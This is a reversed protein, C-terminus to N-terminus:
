SLLLLLLWMLFGTFATVSLGGLVLVPLINEQRESQPPQAPAKQRPRKKRRRVPPRNGPVGPQAPADGHSRSQRMYHIPDPSAGGVPVMMSTSDSPAAGRPMKLPPMQTTTVHHPAGAPPSGAPRRPRRAKAPVPRAADGAQSQQSPPRRRRAPKRAAVPPMGVTRDSHGPQFAPADPPKTKHGNGGSGEGPLGGPPISLTGTQLNQLGARALENKPNIELVKRLCYARESSTDVVSSMWLWARESDGNKRIVETLNQRAEEKRGEKAAAIGEQLPTAM